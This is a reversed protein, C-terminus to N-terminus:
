MLLRDWFCGLVNRTRDCSSRCTVVYEDGTDGYLTHETDSTCSYCCTLVKANDICIPPTRVAVYAAAQLKEDWGGRQFAMVYATLIALECVLWTEVMDGFDVIGAVQCVVGSKCARHDETKRILLAGDGAVGCLHQM